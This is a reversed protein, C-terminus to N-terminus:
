ECTKVLELLKKQTLRPAKDSSCDHSLEEHLKEGPLLGVLTFPKNFIAVLDELCYAKMNPIYVKPHPLLAIAIIMKAADRLSINFRTCKLDSVILMNQKKFKEVVSGKSNFLNGLRVVSFTIKKDGKYNNATLFLNEMLLKTAGYVSTPNFAKDTSVGVISSVKNNMCCDILNQSGIVNTEVFEFPNYQGAQISKLAACHIVTDVNEL